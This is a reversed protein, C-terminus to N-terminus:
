ASLPVSIPRLRLSVAAELAHAEYKHIHILEAVASHLEIPEPALWLSYEPLFWGRPDVLISVLM